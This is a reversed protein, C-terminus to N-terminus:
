AIRGLWPIAAPPARLSQLRRRSQCGPARRSAPLPRFDEDHGAVLVQELQHIVADAHQLRRPRAAIALGNAVRLLHLLNEADLGRLHDVPQRERAVGTVVNRAGAGQGPLSGLSRRPRSSACNCQVWLASRIQDLLEARQLFREFVVLLHLLLAIAVRKRSKRVSASSLRSSAM